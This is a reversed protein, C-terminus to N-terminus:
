DVGNATNEQELDAATEDAEWNRADKIPRKLLATEGRSRDEPWTVPRWHGGVDPSGCEPCVFRSHCTSALMASACGDHTCLVLWRGQRVVAPIPADVVDTSAPLAGHLGARRAADRIFHDYDQGPYQADWTIISQQDTLAM